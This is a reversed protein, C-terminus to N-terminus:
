FCPLNESHCFHESTNGIKPIENLLLQLTHEVREQRGAAVSEAFQDYGKDNLAMGVMRLYFAENNMCRTLGEETDAGLEKLADITIM